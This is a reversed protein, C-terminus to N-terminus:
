GIILKGDAGIEYMGSKIGYTENENVWYRGNTFMAGSSANFLYFDNGIKVLGKQLVGDIYYYTYMGEHFGTSDTWKVYKTEFGNKKIQLVGDANAVYIGPEVGYANDGVWYSGNTLMAGSSANFLYFDDGIKVLGKQLVGNVYYYTYDGEHTGNSDTWKVHNTEFGNKVTQLVGNADTMYFGGVINLEKHDNVWVRQDKCLRGNGYNFFYIKGEIEVPGTQRIGSIYYYTYGNAEQWGSIVLKGDQDFYYIGAKLLDNGQSIFYNRDCVVEGNSTRIYYYDNGIKTLGLGIKVGDIFYFKKETGTAYSIGNKTTDADHEIFGNATFNYNAEPLALGNLITIHYGNKNAVATYSDEPFYLYLTHVVDHEQCYMSEVRVLGKGMVAIGDEIYYYSGGYTTIGPGRFLKGDYESLAYLKGGIETLGKQLEGDIYYYTDGAADTYWGNLKSGCECKGNVYIHEAENEHVDPCCDWQMWHKEDNYKWDSPTGAHNNADLQEDDFTNKDNKEFAGCICSCYYLNGHQCNAVQYLYKEGIENQDFKCESLRKKCSEHDCFHDHDADEHAEGKFKATYTANEKAAVIEKDWGDFTYHYDDDYAKTLPFENDYVPVKGYDVSVQTQQGNVIFTITFKQVAGCACKGDHYQHAENVVIDTKCGECKVNHTGNGNDHYTREGDHVSSNVEGQVEKTKTEAWDAEFTATYTVVEKTHCNAETTVKSTVAANVTESHTCGPVTCKRTATCSKHDESWKYEVDGYTHGKAKGDEFTETGKEGCTCSYYYKAPSTCTAASALYKENTNKQDYVHEKLSGYSKGCHDCKAQETCSATGGYHKQSSFSARYEADDTVESLTGWGSFIYHYTDDADKAKVEPATPMEGYTLEQTKVPVGDLYFTIVFKKKAGCTCTGHDDYEHDLNEDKTHGCGDYYTHHTKGNEDDKCKLEGVHNNEDLEGYVTKTQTVAWDATFTATYVTCERAQCTGPTTKHDVSGQVTTTHGCSCTGKVECKNDKSWTYDSEGAVYKHAEEAFKATYTANEKAAIIEKDWGDFTYHYDDDYAKTLPFENDYVPVKGYDVSVQTQQGNVIFTITFKQVAGCACKGDHYQHAENVVIDTKCGECKVNHTGNGNDHYTREGDHVSSNVEGQVEKTKTEAWDAEFTATYTVVEKTHCNAETTVKSTVAANVTESHTCGPVTCKRTATCSKHDESWDYEVEGYVHPELEGAEFTRNDDKESLGCSCSYYYKAHSTCTAASALYDETAVQKDYVHDGLKYNCKDCIHDHKDTDVHAEPTFEATYIADAYAEKLGGNSWGNFDYHYDKDSEKTLPFKDDYVPVKGYDVSVQTQQGNVIFTITFTQVAHCNKCEGNEFNHAESEKYVHTCGQCTVKHTGNGNDIYDREGVHNTMDKEGYEVKEEYPKAWDKDFTAKYTKYAKNQCTAVAEDIVTVNTSTCTEMEGCDYICSHSATCKTHDEYWTYSVEGGFQHELKEGDDFTPSLDTHHAGCECSCYYINGHQCNAAEKLYVPDEIENVYTHTDWGSESGCDICEEWHHTENYKTTWVDHNTMDKPGYEEGCIECYAGHQCNATGGAHVSEDAHAQCCSWEHWHNDGDTEWKTGLEGTHNNKDMEGYVTETNTAAWDAKFTATYVTYAKEQCTGPTTKWTATVTETEVRGCVTCQHVATCTKHDESWDYNVKGYTHDEMPTRTGCCEYAKCHGHEDQRWNESLKGEHNNEDREGYVIKEQTEAWTETFTATYTESSEIRCTGPKIDTKITAKATEKHGCTSCKRTATCTKHNESWDYTVKGYQHAAEDKHAHCCSWEHWHTTEGEIWQNGLTGTHNNKDVEGYEFTETGEEGCSCSYHYKAKSTCTAESVLYKSDAKMQVFTHGKATGSEFTETGKEGCSCSYYYKAPSTCTAASALYKSDTNKQNYKCDGLKYNCKDCYHDHKNTDVHAEQTFEATYTADGNVAVVNGWTKFTYHYHADPEKTPNKPITPMQGWTLTQTNVTKDGVVFTITYQKQHQCKTCVGNTHTHNETGVKQNCGTCYVDHQTGSISEYRRGTEHNNPDTSGNFTTKSTDSNAWNVGFNTATLTYKEIQKCTATQTVNKTYTKATATESHECHKCERTATCTQGNWSYTTEGYEHGNADNDTWTETSVAGCACTKYYVTGTTCNADSKKNTKTNLWTHNAEDAHAHCCSWEHWHKSGDKEWKTGVTGTHASGNKNGVEVKTKATGAWSEAFTAEFHYEEEKTCTAKVDTVRKISTATVRQESGCSCTRIAECKTTGTWEYSVSINHVETTTWKGSVPCYYFTTGEGYNGTQVYSGDRNQLWAANIAIEAYKSSSQIYQYTVKASGPAAFMYYVGTGESSVISAGSSTTYLSGYVYLEGNVDIRADKLATRAVPKSSTSATYAVQVYGNNGGTYIYQGSWQDADYVYVNCAEGIELMAGQKITVTSGPLLAVDSNIQTIGEVVIDVNNSIPLVYKSSVITAVSTKLSIETMEVIGNVRYEIRDTAPTYKKTFSSGEGLSFLGGSGALVVKCTERQYLGWDAKLAASVTCYTNLKAGTKITLESEINQVYYQSVMFVKEDNNVMLGTVTGGRWDTIQFIESVNSGSNATVTGSGTIYGWAYLNAGGNLVISSGQSLIIQGYAGSPKCVYQTTSTYHRGGVEINGNVTLTVGAGLTLKRYAVPTEEETIYKPSAGYATEDADFPVLLTVGAPITCNENLVYDKLQVIKNINVNKAYAAADVLSDFLVSGAKFNEGAKNFVPQVTCNTQFKLTDTANASVYEGKEPLYWGMFMYGNAPAAVLKYEYEVSNTYSTSSNVTKGDVTYSGNAVPAFTVTAKAESVLTIGSMTISTTQNKEKTGSNVAITVSEGAALEKSFSGGATVNGEDVKVSGEGTISVTYDFSLKASVAMTNTLTIKVAYYKISMGQRSKGSATITNGAAEFKAHSTSVSGAYDSSLVYEVGIREDDLSATGTQEAAHVHLTMQPLMGFLMVATLVLAWIRKSVKTKM